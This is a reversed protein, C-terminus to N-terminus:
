EEANESDVAESDEVTETDTATSETNEEAPTDVITDQGTYQECNTLQIDYQKWLGSISLKGVKDNGPLVLEYVGDLRNYQVKKISSGFKVVIDGTTEKASSKITITCTKGKPFWVDLEKVTAEKFLTSGLSDEEIEEDENAFISNDPNVYGLAGEVNTTFCNIPEYTSYMYLPANEDPEQGEKLPPFLLQENFNTDESYSTGKVYRFMSSNIAYYGNIFYDPIKIEYFKDRLTEYEISAFLEYSKFAHMNATTLYHKYITGTYVELDYTASKNMQTILGDKVFTYDLQVDGIKDLLINEVGLTYADFLESEAMICEKGKDDDLYLYIRGSKMTNINYCGITYGIDYFREWEIYDLLSTESYYVLKDGEFLTPIQIESETTFYQQRNPNVRTGLDDSVKYNQDHYVLPYYIDDHVVYFSGSSLQSEFDKKTSDIGLTSTEYNIDGEETLDQIGGYDVEGEYGCATLMLVSSLALSLMKLKKKM